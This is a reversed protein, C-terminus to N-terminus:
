HRMHHAGTSALARYLTVLAMLIMLMGGLRPLRRGALTTIGYGGFACLALPLSSTIGLVLMSASGWFASSTAAAMGLFVFVLPCPLFGNAAGFLLAGWPGGERALRAFYDYIPRLWGLGATTGGLAGLWELGLLLLLLGSALALARMGMGLPAAQVITHGLAGGLAGLVAYSWAKGALYVLLSLVRGRERAGTALLALGGCMGACHLGGAVGAALLMPLSDIFHPM